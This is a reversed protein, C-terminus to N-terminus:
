QFSGGVTEVDIRQSFFREAERGIKRTLSRSFYGFLPAAVMPIWRAIAREVARDVMRAGIKRSLGRIVRSSVSKVVLTTGVRRLLMEGAAIGMANGLILLILEKNVREEKGYYKAIRYILNVQLKTLAIVEPLITAMGVPGPVVGLAMSIKFAKRAAADIAEDASEFVEGDERYSLFSLVAKELWHREEEAAAAKTPVTSESEM